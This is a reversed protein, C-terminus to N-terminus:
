TSLSYSLSLIKKPVPPHGLMRQVLTDFATAKSGNRNFRFCYEDLYGQLYRGSVSHHVGRIWGKLQQICRHMLNFNEGPQSKLATINYDKQLPKYGSWLDTTIDAQASIHKKFLRGLQEASFDAIQLAYMRKVGTEGQKEIAVAVKEKDAAGRGPKGKRKGGSVLEDVECFGTLPFQGSSTMAQRVKSMFLWATKQTIEYKQAMVVSSCSKTTTSMEFLIHFAKRLSFKLKHFLTNATVSENYRCSKCVQAMKKGQWFANHGCKKCHYEKAQKYNALYTLCTEDSDFYDVFKLLSTDKFEKFM